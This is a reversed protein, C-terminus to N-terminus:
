LWAWGFRAGIASGSYALRTSMFSGTWVGGGARYAASMRGLGWGKRNLNRGWDTLFLVEPGLEPGEAM